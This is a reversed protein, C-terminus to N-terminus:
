NSVTVTNAVSTRVNGAADRAVAQLAHSGNTWGTTNWSLNFPSALVEAGVNVGDIKFQVGGVNDSANAVVTITGSVV